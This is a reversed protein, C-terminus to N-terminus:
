ERVKRDTMCLQYIRREETHCSISYAMLLFSPDTPWCADGGSFHRVSAENRLM